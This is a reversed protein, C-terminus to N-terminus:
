LLTPQMTFYNPDAEYRETNQEVRNAVLVPPPSGKKENIRLFGTGPSIGKYFRLLGKVSYSLHGWDLYTFKSFETFGDPTETVEELTQTIMANAGMRLGFQSNGNAILLDATKVGRDRVYGSESLSSFKALTQGWISPLKNLEVIQDLIVHYSRGSIFVYWDCPQENFIDIITELNTSNVECSLDFQIFSKPNNLSLEPDKSKAVHIYPYKQGEKTGVISSIACMYHIYSTPHSEQPYKGTIFNGNERLDNVSYRRFIETSGPVTYYGFVVDEIEQHRNYLLDAWLQASNVPSTAREATELVIGNAPMDPSTTDGAIRESM